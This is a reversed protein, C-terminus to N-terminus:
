WTYSAGAYVSIPSGSNYEHDTGASSSVRRAYKRDTLNKVHVWCSWVGTDYAARLNYLTPRRYSAMNENDTHYRSLYDMELEIDLLEIPSVTVRANVHHDPSSPMDNGDYVETDRTTYKDYENQTYTHTLDFSLQNSAKYGLTTEVGRISVKGANTYNFKPAGFGPLRYRVVYDEIDMDYFSIDYNIKKDFAKGRLGIEYNEAQEAELDPNPISATFLSSTSPVVFGESYSFWISNNDNIEYTIGAKATFDNFDRDMSADDGDGLWRDEAEYDKNDYRGGLTLKTKEIPTIEYQMFPSIVKSDIDWSSETTTPNYYDDVAHSEESGHQLDVGAILRSDMYGLNRKYLLTASHFVDETTGPDKYSATPNDTADKDRMTYSVEFGSADSIENEYKISMTLSETDSFTDNNVVGSQRWNEEYQAETLSDQVQRFMEFYEARFTLKSTDDPKHILKLSGAERDHRGHERWGDFQLHNIDAFYGLGGQTTGAASIGARSRKYQGVEGWVRYEPIEPADRTIVNIVGGLANSGYLASAPGRLVEISEIDFTNVNEIYGTTGGAPGTSLGDLLNVTYPKGGVPIRLNRVMSFGPIRDM